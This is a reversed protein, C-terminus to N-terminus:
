LSSWYSLIRTYQQTHPFQKITHTHTHTHNINYKYNEEQYIELSIDKKLIKIKISTEQLENSDFPEIKFQTKFHSIYCNIINKFFFFNFKKYFGWIDDPCGGPIVGGGEPPIVEGM